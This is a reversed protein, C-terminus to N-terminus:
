RFSKYLKILPTLLANRCTIHPYTSREGGFGHYFRAVNEDKSGCFDLIYPQNAHRHIYEDMLFFMAKKEACQENRGSFWFYIRNNDHLFCAGAILKGADDRVGWSDLLGHERAYQAMRLFFGYDVDKMKINKDRGRNNRFLAITEEAPIDTDITLAFKQAAKVNRKHNTTYMESLQPYPLHLRLRHTVMESIDARLADAPNFENLVLETQVFKCPIAQVFEAVKEATIGKASFIGLRMLFFPSYIYRFGCRSRWPLPMVAQYDDDVLADWSPNAISLFDFEVFITSLQASRICENWSERNIESHKYFKIVKTGKQIFGFILKHNRNCIFSRM